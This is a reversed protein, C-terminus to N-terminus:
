QAVVLTNRGVKQMGRVIVSDGNELGHVLVDGGANNLVVDVDRRAARGKSVTWAFTRNREDLLIASAPIAVGSVSDKKTLSIEALMGPLLSKDKNAIEAEIEYTRSLVNASIGKNTIKGDYTKNDLAGITIQAADGIHIAGIEKEPVFARAKIKAVDVIKFVPVGPMVNQGVELMKESVIGTAPAYLKCDDLNKQALKESAVAQKYKSEVEMWQIESISKNQYLKEMRARADEAQSKLATAIELANKASTEDLTAVLSGKAVRKGESVNVSKVTGPVSFSVATSSSEQLSGSYHVLSRITAPQAVIIKANVPSDKRKAPSNRKFDCAVICTVFLIVLCVSFLRKM